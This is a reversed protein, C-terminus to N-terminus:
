SSNLFPIFWTQSQDYHVLIILLGPNDNMSKEEKPCLTSSQLFCKIATPVYLKKKRKIIAGALLSSIKTTTRMKITTQCHYYM